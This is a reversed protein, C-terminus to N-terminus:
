TFIGNRMLSLVSSEWKFWKIRITALHHNKLETMGEVNILQREITPLLKGNEQMWKNNVDDHGWLNEEPKEKEKKQKMKM